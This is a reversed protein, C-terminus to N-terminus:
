GASLGYGFRHWLIMKVVLPDTSGTMGIAVGFNFECKPSLDLEIEAMVSRSGFLYHQYPKLQRRGHMAVCIVTNPLLAAAM